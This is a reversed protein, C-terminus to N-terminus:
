FDPDIDLRKREEKWWKEWAGPDQGLDLGSLERLDALCEDKSMDRIWDLSRHKPLKGKLRMIFLEQPFLRM